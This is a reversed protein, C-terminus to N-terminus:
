IIDFWSVGERIYRTITAAVPETAVILSRYNTLKSESHAM